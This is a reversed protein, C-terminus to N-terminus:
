DPLRYEKVVNFVAEAMLKYGEDALHIGDSTIYKTDKNKAYQETLSFIDIVECGCESAAKDIMPIITSKLYDLRFQADHRAPPYM